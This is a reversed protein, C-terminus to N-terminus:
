GDRVSFLLGDRSNAVFPPISFGVHCIVGDAKARLIAEMVGGSGFAQEVEEVDLGHEAVHDANGGPEFDWFIRIWNM